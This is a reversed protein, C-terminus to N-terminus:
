GEEVRFSDLVAFASRLVTSPTATRYGVLAQFNRGRESFEFFRHRYSSPDELIPYRAREDNSMNERFYGHPDLCEESTDTTRFKGVQFTTPRPDLLVTSERREFVIM